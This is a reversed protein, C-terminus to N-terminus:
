HQKEEEKEKNFHRNYDKPPSSRITRINGELGEGSCYSKRDINIFIDSQIQVFMGLSNSKDSIIKSCDEGLDLEGRPKDYTFYFSIFRRYSRM